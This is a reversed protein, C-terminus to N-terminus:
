ELGVHAVGLVGKPIPNSCRGSAKKKNLILVTLYPATMPNLVVDSQIVSIVIIKVIFGDMFM